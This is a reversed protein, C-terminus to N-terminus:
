FTEYHWQGKQLQAAIFKIPLMEAAIKIKARADDTWYGKTEHAELYGEKTLVLWDVKYFTKKALRINIPEFAYWLIEGTQKRAELLREYAKETKNMERAKLRGLAQFRQLGTQPKVQASKRNLRELDDLTWGKTAM